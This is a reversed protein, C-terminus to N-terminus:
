SRVLIRHVIGADERVEDKVRPFMGVYIGDTPKISEFATRFAQEVGKDPIRGAALIKFAFCPKRTQRMVKYMRAPDSQMYIDSALEMMEGNLVKKWEEPTRTRNYVCGSYFDVDWGEDEIQAIVEPKHTGVGVLVGMDRVKKCWERVTRLEGNQYAKDVVEGQRQLALPKLDKVLAAADDEATVQVILHMKGGEAQFRAWDSRARDKQVYNYANIGFRNSQHMVECVKDQTYWQKMSNSFNGNFHAYGYFPNVGLVLRSIEAHFFKMKPVQVAAPAQLANVASAPGALGAALAAGSQLFARRSHSM